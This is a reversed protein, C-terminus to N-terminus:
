FNVLEMHYDDQYETTAVHCCFGAGCDIKRLHWVQEQFSATDGELRVQELSALLGSGEGKLVAEKCTWCDYFMNLRRAPDVTELSSIEPLYRSFDETQIPRIKELDIGVSGSDVMALLVGGGSHSINFDAAGKIFPKGKAAIELQQLFFPERGANRCQLARQLLLKGFLTAQRDEWRQYRAIAQRISAPMSALYQQERDEPLRSGSFALYLQLM